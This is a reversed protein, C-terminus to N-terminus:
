ELATVTYGAARLLAVLGAKGPLHLAGVAIFAGGKALIPEARQSMRANRDTLLAKEFGAFDAASFGFKESIAVQFPMAAGMQRRLYMQAVTELLDDRRNAYKLGAKLIKVQQDEPVSSLSALQEEATELGQVPVERAKALAAIRMDLVQAGSALQRRECDSASLLTTVLWPKLTKAFDAPIGASAAIAQVQKLEDDSLQDALSRGDAYFILNASGLIAGGMSEPSLDAVELVVTKSQGIAATVPEPLSTIRSDSVHMTGYLYSPALSGKEIKWYLAKGNEASEAAEIVKRYSQPESSALEALMDKGACRGAPQATENAAAPWVFATMLASIILSVEFNRFIRRM